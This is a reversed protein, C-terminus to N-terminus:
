RGKSNPNMLGAIFLLLMSGLMSSILCAVNLFFIPSESFQLWVGMSGGLLAGVIGIVINGYLGYGAGDLVVKSLYGATIGQVIWILVDIGM